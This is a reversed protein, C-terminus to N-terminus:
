GWLRNPPSVNEPADDPMLISTGAPIRAGLLSLGPNLAYIREVFGGLRAAKDPDGPYLERRYKWAIEELGMDAGQTIIKPM